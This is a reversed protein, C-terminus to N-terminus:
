RERYVAYFERMAPKRKTSESIKRELEGDKMVYEQDCWECKAALGYPTTLPGGCEPCRRDVATELATRKIGEREKSLDREHEKSLLQGNRFQYDHKCNNCRFDFAHIEEQKFQISHSLL